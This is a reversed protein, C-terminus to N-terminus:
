ELKEFILDMELVLGTSDNLTPIYGAYRFGKQAYSNIVEQHRTNKTGALLLGSKELKIRVYEYMVKHTDEERQKAAMLEEISIEFIEALKMISDTDPYSVGREWNSVAKNTVSIRNALEQQTLGAKKRLESIINGLDQQTM